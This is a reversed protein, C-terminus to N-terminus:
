ELFFDVSPNRVLKLCWLIPSSNLCLFRFSRYSGSCQFFNFRVSRFDVIGISSILLFRVQDLHWSRSIPSRFVFPEADPSSDTPTRFIEQEREREVKRERELRLASGFFTACHYFLKYLIELQLSWSIISRLIQPSWWITIRVTSKMPRAARPPLMGPGSVGM